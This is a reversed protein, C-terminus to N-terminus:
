RLLGPTGIGRLFDLVRTFARQNNFESFKQWQWAEPKRYYLHVQEYFERAVGGISKTNGSDTSGLGTSSMGGFHLDPSVLIVSKGMKVSQIAAVVDASTGGYVVIDAEYTVAAACDSKATTIFAVTLILLTLNIVLKCSRKFINM